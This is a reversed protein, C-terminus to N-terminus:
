LVEEVKKFLKYENCIAQAFLQIETKDNSLMYLTTLPKEYEMDEYLSIKFKRLNGEM